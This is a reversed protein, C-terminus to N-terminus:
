RKGLADLIAVPDFGQIITKGIVVVPVGGAIRQYPIGARRAAKKLAPIARPDKEVDRDVYSIGQQQLWAKLKKCVGCWEASYVVVKPTEGTKSGPARYVIGREYDFRNVVRYPYSGDPNPKRLDAVYLVRPPPPPASGDFVIVASRVEEPVEDISGVTRFTGTEKDLFRFALAKNDPRVHIVPISQTAKADAHAGDAGAHANGRHCSCALLVVALLGALVFPTTPTVLKEPM